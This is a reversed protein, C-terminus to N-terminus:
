GCLALVARYRVQHLPFAGAQQKRSASCSARHSFLELRRPVAAALLRGVSIRMTQPWRRGADDGWRICHWKPGSSSRQKVAGVPLAQPTRIDRSPIGPAVRVGCECLDHPRFPYPLARNHSAQRISSTAFKGESHGRGGTLCDKSDAKTDKFYGFAIDTLPYLPRGDM